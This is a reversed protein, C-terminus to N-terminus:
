YVKLAHRVTLTIIVSPLRLSIFAPNPHVLLALTYTLLISYEQNIDNTQMHHYRTNLIKGILNNCM